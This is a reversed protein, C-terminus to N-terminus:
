RHVESVNGRSVAPASTSGGQPLTLAAQVGLGPPGWARGKKWPWSPQLGVSHGGAESLFRQLFMLGEDTDGEPGGKPLSARAGRRGQQCGVFLRKRM